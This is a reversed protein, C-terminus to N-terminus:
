LHFLHVTWYHSASCENFSFNKGIIVIILFIFKALISSTWLFQLFYIISPIGIVVIWGLEILLDYYNRSTEVKPLGRGEFTGHQAFYDYIEDKERYLEHVWNGSGETDSPIESIPIRRWCFIEKIM